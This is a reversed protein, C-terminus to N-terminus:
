EMKEIRKYAWLPMDIFIAMTVKDFINGIIDVICWIIFMIVMPLIFPIILFESCPYTTFMEDIEKFLWALFTSYFIDTEKMKM